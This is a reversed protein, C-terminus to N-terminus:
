TSPVRDSPPDWGRDLMRGVVCQTEDTRGHRPISPLPVLEHAAEFLSSQFESFSDCAAGGALPASTLGPAIADFFSLTMNCLKLRGGPSIAVFGLESQCHVKMEALRSSESDAYTPGLRLGRVEKGLGKARGVPKVPAAYFSAGLGDALQKVAAVSDANGRHVTMAVRTSVQAERLRQIALYARRWSGDGRHRDHVEPSASDLSVQVAKLDAAVIADLANKDLLSGNTNVEIIFRGRIETLLELFGPYLLPEGGSLVLSRLGREYLLHLLEVWRDVTLESAGRGAEAYCYSCRLNCRDTLQLEAHM